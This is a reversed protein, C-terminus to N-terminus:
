ICDNLRFDTWTKACIDTTTTEGRVADVPLSIVSTGCLTKKCISFSYSNIMIARQRYEGVVAALHSALTWLSEQTSVAIGRGATCCWAATSNENNEFLSSRRPHDGGHTPGWFHLYTHKLTHTYTNTFKHRTAQVNQSYIKDIHSQLHANKGLVAFTVSERGVYNAM